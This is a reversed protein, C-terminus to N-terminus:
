GAITLSKNFNEVAAEYNGLQEYCIGKLNYILNKNDKDTIRTLCELAESYREKKILCYAKNFMLEDSYTKGLLWEFVKLADDYKKLAVLCLAKNNLLIIDDKVIKEAEKLCEIANHYYELKYLCYGKNVLLDPNLSDIQLGIDCYKLAEEYDGKTSAHHM